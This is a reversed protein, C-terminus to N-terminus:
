RGSVYFLPRRVMFVLPLFVFSGEEEEERRGKCWFLKVREREM